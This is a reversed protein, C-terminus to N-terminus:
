VHDDEKRGATNDRNTPALKLAALLPRRKQRCPFLPDLM